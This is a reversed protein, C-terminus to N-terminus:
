VRRSSTLATNCHGLHEFNAKRGIRQLLLFGQMHLAKTYTFYAIIEKLKQMPTEYRKVDHIVGMDHSITLAYDCITQYKEHRRM